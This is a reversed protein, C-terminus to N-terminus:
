RSPKQILYSNSIKINKVDKDFNRMKEKIDEPSVPFNRALYELSVM